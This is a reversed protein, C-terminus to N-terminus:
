NLCTLRLTDTMEVPRTDAKDGLFMRMARRKEPDDPQDYYGFGFDTVDDFDTFTWRTQFVQKSLPEPKIRALVREVAALERDENEFVNCLRQVESEPTPELVLIRGGRKLVRRAEALAFIPDPHHHLSLTFLVVDFIDPGFPLDMGSAGVFRAGPVNAAAMRVAETDPEVGVTLRTGAAYMRTVRGPGCGIELVRKGSFAVQETLMRLTKQEPDREM